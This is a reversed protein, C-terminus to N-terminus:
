GERQQWASRERNWRMTLSRESVEPDAYFVRDSHLRVLLQAPCEGLQRQLRVPDYGADFVFLSDPLHEPLRRRLAGIKGTAIDNADEEPKVRRVDV